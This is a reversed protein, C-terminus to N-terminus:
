KGETISKTLDRNETNHVALINNNLDLYIIIGEKPKM